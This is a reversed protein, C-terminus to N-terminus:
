LRYWCRLSGMGAAPWDLEIVAIEGPAPSFRAGSEGECLLGILWGLLPLHGVVLLAADGAEGDAFYRELLSLAQHPDTLPLLRDSFEQRVTCSLFPCLAEATERCRRWPSSILCSVRGLPEGLADAREQLRVLAAQTLPREPDDDRGAVAECHRMLM